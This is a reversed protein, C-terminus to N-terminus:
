NKKLKFRRNSGEPSFLPHFIDDLLGATLFAKTGYQFVATFQEPNSRVHSFRFDRNFSAESKFEEADQIGELKELSDKIEGPVVEELTPNLCQVNGYLVYDTKGFCKPDASGQLLGKTALQCCKM